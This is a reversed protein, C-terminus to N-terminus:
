PKRALGRWPARQEMSKRNRNDYAHTKKLAWGGWFRGNWYSFKFRGPELEREYLGHRVPKITHPYLPTLRRPTTSRNAM